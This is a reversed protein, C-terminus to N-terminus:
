SLLGLLTNSAATYPSNFAGLRADMGLGAATAQASGMGSAINALQILPDFQLRQANMVDLGMGLEGGRAKQGFGFLGEAAAIRQAGRALRAEDAFRQADFITSPLGTSLGFLDAGLTGLRAARTQDLNAAQLLADINSVRQGEGFTTGFQRQAIDQSQAALLAELNLARQQEGLEAGFQRQSVDQGLSSLISAIDSQRAEEGLRLGSLGVDAGLTRGFQGVEAGMGLLGTGTGTLFQQGGLAGGLASLGLEGRRLANELAVNQQNQAFDQASTIRQIDALEQAQSLEGLV